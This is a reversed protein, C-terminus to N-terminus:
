ATHAGNDRLKSMQLDSVIHKKRRAANLDDINAQLEQLTEFWEDELSAMIQATDLPGCFPFTAGDGLSENVITRIDSTGPQKETLMSTLAAVIEPSVSPSYEGACEGYPSKLDSSLIM